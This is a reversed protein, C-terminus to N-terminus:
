MRIECEFVCMSLEEDDYESIYDFEDSWHDDIDEYNIVEMLDFTGHEDAAIIVKPNDSKRQEPVKDIALISWNGM